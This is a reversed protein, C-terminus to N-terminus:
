SLICHLPAIIIIIMNVMMIMMDEDVGDDGAGDGGIMM